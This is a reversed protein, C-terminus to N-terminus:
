AIHFVSLGERGMICPSPQGNGVISVQGISVDKPILKLCMSGEELGGHVRLDNDM